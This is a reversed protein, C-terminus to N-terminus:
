KPVKDTPNFFRAGSFTCCGCGEVKSSNRVLCTLFRTRGGLGNDLAMSWRASLDYLARAQVLTDHMYLVMFWMYGSCPVHKKAHSPNELVVGDM